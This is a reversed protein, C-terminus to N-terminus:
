APAGWLWKGGLRLWDWKTLAPRGSWVDGNRKQIKKLIEMGGLWVLRLEKRLGSPADTLLPRGQDFLATTREIQRYMFARLAPTAPGKLYDTEAIGAAALDELPAYIRDKAADVIVDQWFNALQLATCIADSWRGRQPTWARHLRLVLEGVPDASHRCYDLLQDYTPHRHVTVDREFATILRHFPDLPLDFRRVTDALAVFIEHGEADVSCRDLRRRWDALRALREPAEPGPEDAFDDATRAFAYVAAVPGRLDAPIWRSAVPFNEYHSQALRRCSAYAEGPSLPTRRPEAVAM